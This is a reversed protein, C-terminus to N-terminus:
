FSEVSSIFSLYFVYPSYQFARQRQGLFNQISMQIIYGIQFIVFTPLIIHIETGVTHSHLICSRLHSQKLKHICTLILHSHRRCHMAIVQYLRIFTCLRINSRCSQSIFFYVIEETIYRGTIANAEPFRSCSNDMLYHEFVISEGATHHHSCVRM